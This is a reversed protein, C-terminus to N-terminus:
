ESKLNVNVARGVGDTVGTDGGWGVVDCRERFAVVVGM